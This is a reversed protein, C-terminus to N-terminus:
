SKKYIEFNRNEPPFNPRNQLHDQYLVLREFCNESFEIKGPIKKFFIHFGIAVTLFLFNKNGSTEASFSM